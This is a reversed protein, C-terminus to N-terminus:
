TILSDAKRAIRDRVTTASDAHAKAAGSGGWGACMGTDEGVASRSLASGCTDFSDTSPDADSEDAIGTSVGGVSEVSEVGIGKGVGGGGPRRALSASSKNKGGTGAAASMM